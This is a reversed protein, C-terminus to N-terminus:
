SENQLLQNYIEKIKKVHGKISVVGKPAEESMEKVEHPHEVVWKMAEQLAVVDNPEVLLGNVGDTIQMEAGGCRTAIVPKGVSLAEAINLGYIEMCITPHVLVDYKLIENVLKEPTIKGHFIVNEQSKYKRMLKSAYKNDVAGILHLECKTKDLQTFAKLLVHVGKIYCIRGVCFFKVPRNVINVPLLLSSSHLIPIGHPVIRIKNEPLGNLTMAEAIANSPALVLDVNETIEKWEEMKRDVSLSATGIPIIFYIFPFRKLIRGLKLRWSLPIRKLIPYFFLGGKTNKLVDPLSSDHCIPTTRIQDKYTMLTGAPDVIGGHHATIICPVSLTNCIKSILAKQAHVHIVDPKIEEILKKIDTEDQDKIEYLGISRYKKKEIEKLPKNVFSFVVVDMGQNIMEDVLNKVYVQGGGYTSFFDGNAIQLVKM